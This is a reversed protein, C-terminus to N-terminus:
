WGTAGHTTPRMTWPTGGRALSGGNMQGHALLARICDRYQADCCSCQVSFCCCGASLVPPLQTAVAVAAVAVAFGARWPCALQLLPALCRPQRVWTTRSPLAPRQGLVKTQLVLLGTGTVTVVLDFIAIVSRNSGIYRKGITTATCAAPMTLAAAATATLIAAMPVAEAVM